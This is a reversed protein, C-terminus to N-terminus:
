VDCSVDKLRVIVLDEACETIQRLYRYDASILGAALPPLSNFICHVRLQVACENYMAEAVAFIAESDRKRQNRLLAKSGTGTAKSNDQNCQRNIELLPRDEREIQWPISQISTLDSSV